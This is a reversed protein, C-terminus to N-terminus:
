RVAIELLTSGYVSDDSNKMTINFNYRRKPEEVSVFDADVPVSLAVEEKGDIIKVYQLTGSDLKVNPANDFSGGHAKIKLDALNSWGTNVDYIASFIFDNVDISDLRPKLLFLSRKNFSAYLKKARIIDSHGNQSKLPQVAIDNIVVSGDAQYKISGASIKTNTMEGLQGLAIHCLLKGAYIYVFWLLVALISVSGFLKIVTAFKSKHKGAKKM